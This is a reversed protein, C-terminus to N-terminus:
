NTKQEDNGADSDDTERQRIIIKDGRLEVVVSELIEPSIKEPKDEGTNVPAYKALPQFPFQSDLVLDRPLALMVSTGYKQFKVVATKTM